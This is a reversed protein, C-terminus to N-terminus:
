HVAPGREVWGPARCRGAAGAREGGPNKKFTFGLRKVAAWLGGNSLRVGHRDGLWDQLRALTIDPEARIRAAFALEQRPSLKRPRHGRNRNASSDGTAGQPDTGQLYVLHEGPVAGGGPAGGDRWRGGGAGPQAPGARLEAGAAVDDWVADQPDQRYWIM